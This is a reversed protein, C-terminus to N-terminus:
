KSMQDKPFHLETFTNETSDFEDNYIFIIIEKKIM